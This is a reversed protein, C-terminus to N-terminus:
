RLASARAQGIVLALHKQATTQDVGAQKIDNLLANYKDLVATKDFVLRQTDDRYHWQGWNEDLLELVGLMDNGIRDDAGRIEVIFPAQAGSTQRFGALASKIATESVDANVLEARYNAENQGLFTELKKNTELFSQVAAKREQIDARQTLNSSALVKKATLTQSAGAYAAQLSQIRQLYAQTGKLLAASDGTSNQVAQGLSKNLENLNVTQKDPNNLSGVAQKRFDAVAGNLNEVAQKHAIAAERARVFNPVALVVPVSSLALGLIARTIVSAREGSRSMAIALIGLIVGVALILCSVLGLVLFLGMTGGDKPGHSLTSVAFGLGFIILPAALCANAAHSAFSRGKAPTAFEPLPPPTDYM